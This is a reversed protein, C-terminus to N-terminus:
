AGPAYSIGLQRCAEGLRRDRTLLSSPQALQVSALLHADVYGIGSGQLAHNQIFVLVEDDFARPITPLAQLAQIVRDRQRLSGLALEGIVFPHTAVLGKNLLESLLSDGRNLHDIWVSTDVLIM